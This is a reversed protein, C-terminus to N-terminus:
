AQEGCYPNFQKERKVTTKEDHGPYVITEEPLTLLKERISGVLTEYNGTPFDCRGIEGAFLTDGSFLIHDEEFYYCMGGKTHGPVLICKMKKDLVIMEQGDELLVEPKITIIEGFMSSLNTRPNELLEAEQISCHVQISHGLIDKIGGVAGIHDIHGHTIYIGVCRFQRSEMENCLFRANDPPDIIICEGIDQNAVIYCNTMFNGLQNTMVILKSM